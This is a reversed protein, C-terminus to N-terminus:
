RLGVILVIGFEKNPFLYGKRLPKRVSGVINAFLKGATLLAVAVAILAAANPNGGVYRGDTSELRADNGDDSADDFKFTGDDPTLVLEVSFVKCNGTFFSDNM